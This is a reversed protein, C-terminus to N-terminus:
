RQQAATELGAGKALKELYFLVGGKNGSALANALRDKTIASLTGWAPSSILGQLQDMAAAGIVSAIGGGGAQAGALQAIRRTLPKQQGTRRAVTQETVDSVRNWFSFEKNLAALDPSASALEARVADGAYKSARGRAWDALQGQNKTFAGAKDAVEDWYQRLDRLTTAPIERTGNVPNITSAEVLTEGIGQLEKLGAEAPGRKAVLRGGATTTYFHERAVDDLRQLIPDIQATVGTRDMRDWVDDIQQGFFRMRDQARNLLRPMSAAWEGRRIMEPVIKQAIAKTKEKTPNLVRSYQTLAANKLQPALAAAGAGAASMAGATVAANRMAEPAGGSQLGAVGGAALAELGGRGAIQAAKSTGSLMGAGKAVLRGPLLFEAGQEAFKGVTGATSQPATALQDLYQRQEPSMMGHLGTLQAAGRLTSFTGAGVGRLFDAGTEAIKQRAVDTAAGIGASLTASTSAPEPADETEIEYVSGDETEVRYKGM